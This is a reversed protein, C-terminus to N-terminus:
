DSSSCGLVTRLEAILADLRAALAANDPAPRIATPQDPQAPSPRHGRPRAQAIRALAAELRATEDPGTSASDAM